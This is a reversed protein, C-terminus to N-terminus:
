LALRSALDIAKLLDEQTDIDMLLETEVLPVRDISLHSILERVSKNEINEFKSIASRLKDTRYIAALPQAFGDGDVPLAADSILNEKLLNLIKSAFPM